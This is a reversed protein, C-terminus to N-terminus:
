EAGTLKIRAVQGAKYQSMDYAKGQVQLSAASANGITLRLPYQGSVTLSTGAKQLGYAIKQQNADLVSLWCDETFSFQLQVATNQAAAEISPVQAAPETVPLTQAAPTASTTENSTESPSASPSSTTVATNSPAPLSSEAVAATTTDAATNAAPLAATTQEIPVSAVPRAEGETTEISSVPADESATDAHTPQATGAPSATTAPVASSDVATTTPNSTVQVTSLQTAVPQTSAAATQTVSPTTAVVPTNNSTTKNDLPAVYDPLVAVPEADMLHTQWFWVFFLGILLVVLGYTALMFRSDAAERSTKRSFSHMETTKPRLHATQLDFAQLIERESLKLLRAYARLYGKVFTTAMSTDWQEAELKEIIAVKLNLQAAADAQSMGRQERTTKLLAGISNSATDPTTSPM